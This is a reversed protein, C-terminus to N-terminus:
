RLDDSLVQYYEDVLARYKPPVPQDADMRATLVIADQIRSQLVDMIQRLEANVNRGAYTFQPQGASFGGSSAATQNGTGQRAQHGSSSASARKSQASVNLQSLKRQLHEYQAAIESGPAAEQIAQLIAAAQAEAALLEDLRPQMLRRRLSSLQRTIEALDREAARAGSIAKDHAGTAIESALRRMDQALSAPQQVAQLEGLAKRLAPDDGLADAELHRILDALIETQDALEGQTSALDPAASNEDLAQAVSGEAEALRAAMQEAIALRQALDASGLGQLHEDLQELLKAARRAHQTADHPQSAEMLKSSKAIQEAAEVMRQATLENATENDRLADQLQQARRAAQQQADALQSMTPQSATQSGASTPRSGPQVQQPNSSQDLRAGGSTSAVQESWTRQDRALEQLAQRTAALSQEAEEKKKPARLKQVMENDYKKCQGFQGGSCNKLFKRANQRASVLGALASEEFPMAQGLQRQDLKAAAEEMATAALQLGPTPGFQREWGTAFQRTAELIEHQSHALRSALKDQVPQRDVNAFTRRLTHRQRAILEELTLCSGSGQCNGNVIQYERKYPRIDIFRLESRSRHPEARNDEAFAYYTIADDFHLLHNELYLVPVTTLTDQAGSLDQEWLSHKEGGNIQYEIGVKGLGFDDSVHLQLAVETTPTVELQQQPRKFEVTPGSDKKVRIHIQDSAFMMGDAATAHVEYRVSEELQSLDCVLKSGQISIEPMPKGFASMGTPATLKAEAPTRNLVLEWSVLSGEVVTLDMESISQPQQGTYSPPEVHALFSRQTLPQLVKLECRRSVAPGAVVKYVLDHDCRIRATLEGHVQAPAADEEAGRPLLPQRNWTSEDQRRFWLTAEDAPRGTIVAQITVDTGVPVPQAQTVQLKTYHLPLLLLRAFTTRTESWVALLLLGGVLLLILAATGPVLRSWPVTHRFDVHQARQNTDDILASTLKPSDEPVHSKGFQYATRLRQGLEPHAAEVRTAASLENLERQQQGWRIARTIAAVGLGLLMAARVLAPAPWFYDVVGVAALVLVAQWIFRLIQDCLGYQQLQTRTARLQHQVGDALSSSNPTTPPSM